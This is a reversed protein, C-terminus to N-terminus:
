GTWTWSGVKCNVNDCKKDFEGWATSSKVDTDKMSTNSAYYANVSQCLQICQSSSAGQQGISFQTFFFVGVGALVLLVIIIM